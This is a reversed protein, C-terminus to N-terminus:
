KIIRKQGKSIYIGPRQVQTVRRGGLDYIVDDVSKAKGADGVVEDIGDPNNDVGNFIYVYSAALKLTLPTDIDIPEGVTLGALNNQSFAKSLTITTHIYAPIDLAERM